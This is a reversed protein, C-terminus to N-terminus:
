LPTTLVTLRAAPGSRACHARTNVFCLVPLYLLLNMLRIWGYGCSAGHLLSLPDVARQSTPAYLNSTVRLMLDPLRPSPTLIFSGMNRVEKALECHSALKRSKISASLFATVTRAPSGSGYLLICFMLGKTQSVPQHARSQGRSKEFIKTEFGGNQSIAIFISTAFTDSVHAFWCIVFHLLNLLLINLM